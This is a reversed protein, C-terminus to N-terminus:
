LHETNMECNFWMLEMCFWLYLKNINVMKIKMKIKNEHLVLSM